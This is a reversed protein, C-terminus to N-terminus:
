FLWTMKPIMDSLRHQYDELWRAEPNPRYVLVSNLDEPLAAQHYRMFIHKQTKGIIEIKGSKHSMILRARKALGSCRAQADHFIQLSKEIPVTLHWNGSTPRCQFVYYPSIGMFSLKKFLSTLTFPDDNVGRILPTQSIMEIGAEKIRSIASRATDTVEIPHNFHSVVYIKRDAHSHKKIM